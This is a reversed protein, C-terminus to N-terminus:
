WRGPGNSAGLQGLLEPLIFFIACLGGGDCTLLSGVEVRWFRIPGYRTCSGLDPGAM